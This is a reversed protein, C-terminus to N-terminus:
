QNIYGKTVGPGSFQWTMVGNTVTPRLLYYDGILTFNNVNNPFVFIQGNSLTFIYRVLGASSNIINGPVGNQGARCNSLSGTRQFCIGVAEKYPTSARIMESYRSKDMYSIYNPVAVSALLGLIAIAFVLEVLTFGLQKTMNLM